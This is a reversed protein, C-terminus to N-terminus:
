RSILCSPPTERGEPHSFLRSRPKPATWTSGAPKATSDAQAGATKWVQFAAEKSVKTYLFYCSFPDKKFMSSLISTTSSALVDTLHQSLPVVHSNGSVRTHYTPLRQKDGQNTEILHFVFTVGWLSSLLSFVMFCIVCLRAPQEVGKMLKHTSPWM